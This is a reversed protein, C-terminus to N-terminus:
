QDDEVKVDDTNTVFVFGSHEEHLGAISVVYDKLFAADLLALVNRDERRVPIIVRRKKKHRNWSAEEPKFIFYVPDFATNDIGVVRGKIRREIM